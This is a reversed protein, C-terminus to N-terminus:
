RSGAAAGSAGREGSAVRGLAERLKESTFPKQVFGAFDGQTFRATVDQEAYGSTLIARVDPRIRRLEELTALGDRGPMSLDLVVCAIKAANSRFVEVAQLGDVATLVQWGLNELM